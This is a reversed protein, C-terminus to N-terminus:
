GEEADSEGCQMIWQRSDRITTVMEFGFGLGTDALHLLLDIDDDADFDYLYM